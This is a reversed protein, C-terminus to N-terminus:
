AAIQKPIQWSPNLGPGGLGTMDPPRCQAGRSQGDELQFVSTLSRQPTTPTDSRSFANMQDCSSVGTRREPAPVHGRPEHGEPILESQLADAKVVEPVEGRRHHEGTADVQSRRSCQEAM